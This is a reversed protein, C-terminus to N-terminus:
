NRERANQNNYLLEELKYGLNKWQTWMEYNDYFEKANEKKTIEEANDEIFGQVIHLFNHFIKNLDMLVFM